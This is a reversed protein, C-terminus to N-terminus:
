SCSVAQEKRVIKETLGFIITPTHPASTKIGSSLPPERGNCNPGNGGCLQVAARYCQKMNQSSEQELEAPEKRRSFTAELNWM